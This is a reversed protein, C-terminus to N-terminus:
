LTAETTLFVCQEQLFGSNSDWCVSLCSVVEWSELNLPDSGQAGWPCGVSM